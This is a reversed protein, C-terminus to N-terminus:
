TKRREHEEIAKDILAAIDNILKIKIQIQKSIAEKLQFHSKDIHEQAIRYNDTKIMAVEAWKMAVDSPKKTKSM